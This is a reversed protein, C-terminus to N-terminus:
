LRLYVDREREAVNPLRERLGPLVDSRPKMPKDTACCSFSSLFPNELRQVKTQPHRESLSLSLTHTHPLALSRSLSLAVSTVSLSEFMGLAPLCSSVSSHLLPPLLPRSVFLLLLVHSSHFFFPPFPVVMSFAGSTHNPPTWMYRVWDRSGTVWRRPQRRRQTTKAGFRFYVKSPTMYASFQSELTVPIICTTVSLEQLCAM